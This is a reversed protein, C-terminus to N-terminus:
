SRYGGAIHTGKYINAYYYHLLKSNLLALFFKLDFNQKAADKLYAVFFTDKCYYHRTDYAARLRLANQCIILKEQEFIKKPPLQNGQKKARKEDYDIWWGGWTLRYRQVDDNGAFSKGGILKKAFASRPKEPSLFRERLGSAHFSITWKLALYNELPQSREDLLKALLSHETRGNPLIFFVLSDRRYADQRVTSTCFSKEVLEQTSRIKEATKIINKNPKKNEVIFIVPYVSVNEFVDCESVDIIEKISYDNLVIERMDKAYNAILFKNQFIYGLRGGEKLLRLGTDIFCVFLDFAGHAVRPCSKACLEKTSRDMRKAELYPPNGVVFDFGSQFAGAKNKVDWVTQENGDVLSPAAITNTQFIHIKPVVYDRNKRKAEIILDLLQILINTEALYCAFPNIDLGYVSNIVTEIISEANDSKGLKAILRNAARTTFGCSGCSIDIIKKNNINQTYGVQDLIYDVVPELTYFQGLSKREEKTIFQEYLKGLIDRDTRSFDYASFSDSIKQLLSDSPVYWDFLNAIFIHAYIEEAEKKLVYLKQGNTITEFQLLGKDRCVWLLLVENLFTYGTELCFAGEDPKSETKRWSLFEENPVFKRKIDLQSTIFLQRLEENFDALHESLVKKRADSTFLIATKSTTLTSMPM